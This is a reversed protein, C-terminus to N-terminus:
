RVSGEKVVGTTAKVFAGIEDLANQAHPTFGVLQHWVHVMDDYVTYTVDLGASKAAKAFEAIQDYLVEVGGAQILVPPLGRLEAFLPSVHPARPDSGNLYGAAAILCAERTVPDYPSNADFSKDSCELDVWPSICVVGAPLVDGADRLAVLTSIVLGGGASDGALVIRRPAIGTKVLYRYAECADEIAAPQPYEPALRYEPALLRASAACAIAGMLRGHTKASGYVYGGGHLYLIVSGNDRPPVFWHGPAEQADSLEVAAGGGAVKLLGELVSQYREPGIRSLLGYTGGQLGIITELKWSWAKRRPASVMRRFGSRLGGGIM